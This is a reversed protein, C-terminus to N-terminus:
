GTGGPNGREALRRGIEQFLIRESEFIKVLMSKGMEKREAGKVSQILMKNISGRRYFPVRENVERWAEDVKEKQSAKTKGPDATEMTSRITNLLFSPDERWRPNIIDLEYIGRHGYDALFNRFSQKFPSEDPLEKEWLLPPFPEASFFRRAAADGRAVKAMGALRYGHEASTIDGSGAMLANSMARGKGPFYKELTKIFPFTVEASGFVYVPIFEITASRIETIKKILDRKTLSKLDEKLMAGTFCNVDNFCKGTNKRIKQVIFAGKILRGLRKCGKIGRYPKEESIEVERGGFNDYKEQAGMGRPDIGLADYLLWGLINGNFYARGQYLRAVQLGPPIQYGMTRLPASFVTNLFPKKLSWNLTSQVLPMVERLNMNSWVDPQNRFGDITYRPLATVPRAQVLAFDKGDFVWEIDQHQEGCGLADFVRQILMGLRRINEDSLVQSAAPM